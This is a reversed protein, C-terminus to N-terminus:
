SYPIVTTTVIRQDMASVSASLEKLDRVQNSAKRESVYVRVVSYYLSGLNSGKGKEEKDEEPGGM